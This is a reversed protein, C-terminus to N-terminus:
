KDNAKEIKSQISRLAPSELAPSTDRKRKQRRRQLELLVAPTAIGIFLTVNSLIFIIESRRSNDLPHKYEYVTLAGSILLAVGGVIVLWKDLRCSLSRLALLVFSVLGTCVIVLIIRM